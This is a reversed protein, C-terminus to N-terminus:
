MQRFLHAFPQSVLVTERRQKLKLVMRGRLDRSVGAIAAVNVITARHVQWFSAPDLEDLLEKITKRILTESETTVMRTYKTDSQFYCVEDVTVLKVNAGQSANIWRLSSKPAASVGLQQLLRRYDPPPAAIAQKVRRLATALRSMSLPKLLYDVAGHDFALVAHEDYATVFVIQCRGSAHMAVDLGSMGPMQIDLFLVNPQVADILRVADLGNAAEGVIRLEPWLQTLASRLEDRLIAEDEVILATAEPNALAELGSGREDAEVTKM